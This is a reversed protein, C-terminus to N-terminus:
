QEVEKQPEDNANVWNSITHNAPKLAGYLNVFVEEYRERYLHHNLMDPEIIKQTINLQDSADTYDDYVGAGIGAALAAGLCTAEDIDPIVLPLGSVDSKIQMFLSNRTGGGAAVLRKGALQFRECVEDLIRQYEFALGEMVARALHGPGCDSSLGVFAGRSFPDMIPPNAQRLHPLFFVGGSGPPVQDAMQIMAEFSQKQDPLANHLLQRTWDISGGGFTNGSIAYYREPIVHIGQAIGSTVVGPDEIRRDLTAVIAEATGISDFIDGPETVGLGAAACLHDHGASCVPLDVPLGTLDAAAQHVSGIQVASPVLQGFLSTDLEVSNLLSDSWQRTDIDLVMMRSALSYETAMIGSLRYAAYDPLNLWFKTGAFLEPHNDRLWLPRLIGAAPAIPLGTIRATRDPGIINQWQEMQPLVRRDFWAIAAHLPNGNKDLPFGAEAMGTFAIAAFEATGALQAVVDRIITVLAGWLSDHDFEAWDPHPYQTPTSVAARALENGDPSFALAKLNTTGIDVGLIVTQM